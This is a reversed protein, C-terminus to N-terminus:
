HSQSADKLQKELMKLAEKDSKQSLIEETKKLVPIFEPFHKSGEKLIEKLDVNKNEDLFYAFSSLRILDQMSNESKKLVFEKVLKYLKGTDTAM